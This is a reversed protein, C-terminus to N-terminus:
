ASLLQLLEESDRPLRGKRSSDFVADALERKHSQMALIREEVTDSAVLRYVLVPKDQGIRHARDTAQNEVAPNWWPDLHIVVDAATLNLGSGGAKLSILFLPVAGSQFRDIAEQRKRTKGTLKTFPLKLRKLEAEVLTLAQTFQSFLLIRRGEEVLQPLTEALWAIKASESVANAADLKVLRQDICAQRLKLLADLFAIHSRAMGQKAVLDLIREEMSVRIAEYLTRQRGQLEVYQVADTKEPLEAAVESKRRRLMFPSLRRGLEAQQATDGQKEVPNRFHQNFARRGGLLGPLVFDMLAWLEGLHNELPTGTLCLRTACDIDRVCGAVKARPNKIAQAEDLVLLSFRMGGYRGIDRLLLAYSTIVLDSDAIQGFAAARQPGQLLLTRLQPTFRAAEHQWNGTLSTPLKGNQNILGM